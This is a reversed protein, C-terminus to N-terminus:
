RFLKLDPVQDGLVLTIDTGIREGPAMPGVHSLEVRIIPRYKWGVVQLHYVPSTDIMSIEFSNQAMTERYIPLIKEVLDHAHEQKLESGLELRHSAFITAWEIFQCDRTSMVRDDVDPGRYRVAVQEPASQMLGLIKGLTMPTQPPAPPLPEIHDGGLYSFKSM